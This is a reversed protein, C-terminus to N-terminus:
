SVSFSSKAGFLSKLKQIFIQHIPAEFLINAIYENYDMDRDKLYRNLYKISAKMGTNKEINVLTNYLKEVIEINESKIARRFATYNKIAGSFDEEYRFDTTVWYYDGNKTYNKVIAIFNNRKKISKWMLYFIVKPMNPHRIINHPKNIVEDESFGAVRLFTDNAYNIIGSHDTRTILIDNKNIIIEKSNM